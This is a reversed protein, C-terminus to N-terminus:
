RRRRRRRRRQRTRSRIGALSTPCPTKMQWRDCPWTEGTPHWDDEEGGEAVPGKIRISAGTKGLCKARGKRAQKKWFGESFESRSTDSRLLVGKACAVKAVEEYLKTGFGCRRPALGAFVEISDVDLTGPDGAKKAIRYTGFAEGIHTGSADEM